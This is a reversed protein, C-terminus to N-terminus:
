FFEKWKGKNQAIKTIDTEINKHEEVPAIYPNIYPM